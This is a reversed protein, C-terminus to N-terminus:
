SRNTFLSSSLYLLFSILGDILLLVAGDTQKMVGEVRTGTYDIIYLTLAAAPNSYNFIDSIQMHCM